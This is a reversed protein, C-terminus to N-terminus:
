SLTVTAHWSTSHSGLQRSPWGGTMGGTRPWREPCALGMLERETEAAISLHSSAATAAAKQLTCVYSVQQQTWALMTIMPSPRVAITFSDTLAPATNMCSLRSTCSCMAVQRLCVHIVPRARVEQQRHDRHTPEATSSAGLCAAQEHWAAAPCTVDMPLTRGSSHKMLKWTPAFRHRVMSVRQVSVSDLQRLILKCIHM